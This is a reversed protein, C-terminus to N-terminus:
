PTPPTVSVLIAAAVDFPNRFRHPLRSDFTIAEEARVVHEDGGVEVVVAGTLVYVCETSEHGRPEAASAEGPHLVARLVELDGRGPTLREYGVMGAPATLTTREGPRSVQVRPAAPEHFLEAVEADFVTALKRLTAVSPETRGNEVQSLLAASVGSSAALARLSLGRAERLERLRPGIM